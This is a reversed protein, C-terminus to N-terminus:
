PLDPPTWGQLEDMTKPPKVTGAAVLKQLQEVRALVAAPIESRTYKLPSLGVGEEKVGFERAGPAIKGAKAEKCLAFVANDVRKMMSTLVRSPPAPNKPDATGLYDQDADVGIAWFGPGKERAARIVGLGCRGSAHMVVDAGAGYLSLALEKGKQVNEWDNTYKAAVSVKPRTTMAGATFGAEFKKILPIELGGVFGLKSSKTMGGALAGALYSGEEERFVLGTVNPAQPGAADVLVFHTEPFRPAVQKVADELAFGIGFVVNAGRQALRELNPAYDSAQRSEILTGTVGLDSKARELGQSAMMNFSLDGIGGVDTVMGIKLGAGTGPSANASPGGSPTSAGDCGALGVAALLCALPLAYAPFRFARIPRSAGRARNNV